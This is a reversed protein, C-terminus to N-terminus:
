PADPPVVIPSNGDQRLVAVSGEFKEMQVNSVDERGVLQLKEPVPPRGVLLRDTDDGDMSIIQVDRADALNLPATLNPASPAQPAPPAPWYARGLLAALLVAAAAGLAPVYARRPTRRPLPIRGTPLESHVRALLADWADPPPEPAATRRCLHTLRRLADVEARAQPSRDLWAEVAERECGHLEGDVYAALKECSPKSGDGSM